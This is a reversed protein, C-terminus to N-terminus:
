ATGQRCYDHDQCLVRWQRSFCNRLRRQHDGRIDRNYYTFRSANRNDNERGRDKRGGNQIKVSKKHLGGGNAPLGKHARIKSSTVPM